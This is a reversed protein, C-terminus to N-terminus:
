QFILYRKRLEACTANKLIIVAATPPFNSIM